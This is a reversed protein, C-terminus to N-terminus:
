QNLRRCAPELNVMPRQRTSSSARLRGQGGNMWFPTCCWLWGTYARSEEPLKPSRAIGNGQIGACHWAMESTALECKTLNAQGEVLARRKAGANQAATPVKSRRACTRACPAGRPRRFAPSAGGASRRRPARRRAPRPGAPSEATRARPGLLARRIYHSSEQVASSTTSSPHHMLATIRHINM